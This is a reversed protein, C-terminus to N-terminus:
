AEMESVEPEQGLYKDVPNELASINDTILIQSTEVIASTVLPQEQDLISSTNNFRDARKKFEFDRDIPVIKKEGRSDEEEKLSIVRLKSSPLKVRKYYGSSM